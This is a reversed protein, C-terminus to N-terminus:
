LLSTANKIIIALTTMQYKNRYILAYLQVYSWVYHDDFVGACRNWLLAHKKKYDYQDNFDFWIFIVTVDLM